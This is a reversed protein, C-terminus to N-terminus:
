RNTVIIAREGVKIDDYPRGTVWANTVWANRCRRRNMAM